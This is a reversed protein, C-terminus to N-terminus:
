LLHQNDTPEESGMTSSNELLHSASVLRAGPRVLIDVHDFIM